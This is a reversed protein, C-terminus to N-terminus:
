QGGIQPLGPIYPSKRMTPPLPSPEDSGIGRNRLEQHLCTQLRYLNDQNLKEPTEAFQRALARCAPSPEARAIALHGLTVTVLVLCVFCGQRIVPHM